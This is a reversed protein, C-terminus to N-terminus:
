AMVKAPQAIQENIKTYSVVGLTRRTPFYATTTKVASNM